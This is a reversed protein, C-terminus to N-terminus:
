INSASILDLCLMLGVCLMKNTYLGMYYNFLLVM